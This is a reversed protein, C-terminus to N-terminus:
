KLMTWVLQGKSDLSQNLSYWNGQMGHKELQM